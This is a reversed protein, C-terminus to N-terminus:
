IKILNQFVLPPKLVLGAKDGEGDQRTRLRLNECVLVLLVPCATTALEGHIQPNSDLILFELVQGWRVDM